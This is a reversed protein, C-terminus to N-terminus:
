LLLEDSSPLGIRSGSDSLVIFEASRQSNGLPHEERPTPIVSQKTELLALPLPLLEVPQLMCLGDAPYLDGMVPFIHDGESLVLEVAGVQGLLLGLLHLDVFRGVHDAVFVSPDESGAM